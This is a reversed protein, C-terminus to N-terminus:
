AEPTAKKMIEKIKKVLGRRPNSFNQKVHGGIRLDTTRRILEIEHAKQLLKAIEHHFDDSGGARRISDALCLTVWAPLGLMVRVLRAGAKLKRYIEKM